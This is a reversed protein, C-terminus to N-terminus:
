DLHFKILFDSLMIIVKLCHNILYYLLFYYIPIEIKFYSFIDFNM